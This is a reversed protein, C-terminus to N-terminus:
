WELSVVAGLVESRYRLSDDKRADTSHQRAHASSDDRGHAGQKQDQRKRRCRLNGRQLTMPFDSGLIRFAPVFADEQHVDLPSRRPIGGVIPAANSLKESVDVMGIFLAKFDHQGISSHDGFHAASPMGFIKSRACNMTVVTRHAPFKQQGADPGPRDAKGAISRRAKM